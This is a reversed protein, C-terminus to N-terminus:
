RPSTGSRQRKKTHWGRDIRAKESEIRVEIPLGRSRSALSELKRSLVRRKVLGEDALTQWLEKLRSKEVKLCRKMVKTAVPYGRVNRRLSTLLLELELAEKGATRAKEIENWDRDLREILRSIKKEVELAGRRVQLRRDNSHDRQILNGYEDFYLIAASDQSDLYKSVADYMETTVQIYRWGDPVLLRDGVDELLPVECVLKSGRYPLLPDPDGALDQASVWAGQSCCVVGILAILVVTWRQIRQNM